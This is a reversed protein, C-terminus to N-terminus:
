KAALFEERTQKMREIRSEEVGARRLFSFFEDAAQNSYVDYTFDNATATMKTAEQTTTIEM